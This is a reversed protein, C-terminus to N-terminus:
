PAGVHAMVKTKGDFRLWAIKRDEGASLVDGPLNEAYKLCARNNGTRELEFGSLGDGGILRQDDWELEVTDDPVVDIQGENHLMVEALPPDPYEVRM